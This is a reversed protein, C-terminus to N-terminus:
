EGFDKKRPISADVDCGNGLSGLIGCSLLISRKEHIKTKTKLTTREPIGGVFREVGGFVFWGIYVAPKYGGDRTYPHHDRDVYESGELM